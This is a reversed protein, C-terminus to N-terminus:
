GGSRCSSEANTHITRDKLHKKTDKLLVLERNSSSEGSDHAVIDDYAQRANAVCPILQHDEFPTLFTPEYKSAKNRTEALWAYLAENQPDYYLAANDRETCDLAPVHSVICQVLEKSGGRNLFQQVHDNHPLPQALSSHMPIGLFQRIHEVIATTNSILATTSLVLIQDRRFVELMHTLQSQYQGGYIFRGEKVRIEQMTHVKDFSKGLYLEERLGHQYGSYDRSVPERLLVIFKLKSAATKGYANAIRKWCITCDMMPTGDIGMANPEDLSAKRIPFYTSKYYQLGKAFAMENNWFHCEKHTGKLLLPHEILLEFLSSSGGKQTGVLYVSPLFGTDKEATSSGLLLFQVLTLIRDNM